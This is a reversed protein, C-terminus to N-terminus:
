GVEHVGFVGVGLSGYHGSCPCRSEATNTSCTERLQWTWPRNGSTPSVWLDGSVTSSVWRDKWGCEWTVGSGSVWGRLGPSPHPLPSDVTGVLLGHTGPTHQGRDYGARGTQGVSLGHRLFPCGSRNGLHDTPPISSSRGPDTDLLRGDGPSVWRGENGAEM